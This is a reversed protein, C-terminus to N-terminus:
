SEEKDQKWNTLTFGLALLRVGTIMDPVPQPRPVVAIAGGTNLITM